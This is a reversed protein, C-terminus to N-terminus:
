PKMLLVAMFYYGFCDICITFLQTCATLHGCVFVWYRVAAFPCSTSVLNNTIYINHFTYFNYFFVLELLTRIGDGQTGRLSPAVIGGLFTGFIPQARVRPPCPFIGAGYYRVGVPYGGVWPLVAGGTWGAPDFENFSDVMLELSQKVVM